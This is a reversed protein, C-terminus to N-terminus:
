ATRLYTIYQEDDIAIFPRMKLAAGGPTPVQWTRQDIGSEAASWCKSVVAAVTTMSISRM